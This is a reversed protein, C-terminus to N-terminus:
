SVGHLIVSEIRKIKQKWGDRGTGLSIRRPCYCSVRTEYQCPYGIRMSFDVRAESRTFEATDPSSVHRNGRLATNMWDRVTAEIAPARLSMTKEVKYEM